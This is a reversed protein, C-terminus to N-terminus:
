TNLPPSEWEHIDDKPDASGTIGSAVTDIVAEADADTAGNETLAKHIRDSVKTGDSELLLLEALSEPHDISGDSDKLYSQLEASAKPMRTGPWIFLGQDEAIILSFPEETRVM